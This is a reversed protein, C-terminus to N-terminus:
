TGEMGRVAAAAPSVWILVLVGIKKPHVTLLDGALVPRADNV